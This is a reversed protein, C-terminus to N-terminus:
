PEGEASDASRTGGPMGLSEEARSSWSRGWGLDRLVVTFQREHAVAEGWAVLEPRGVFSSASQRPNAPLDGPRPTRESAVRPCGTERAASSGITRPPERGFHHTGQLPRVLDGGCIKIGLAQGESYNLLRLSISGRAETAEVSQNTM